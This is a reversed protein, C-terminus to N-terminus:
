QQQQKKISRNYTNCYKKISLCHQHFKMMSSSNRLTKNRGISYINDSDKIMKIMKKIIMVSNERNIWKSYKIKMSCKKLLKHVDM